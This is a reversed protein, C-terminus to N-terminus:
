SVYVFFICFWLLCIYSMRHTHISVVRYQHVVHAGAHAMDFHLTTVTGKSGIWVKADRAEFGEGGRGKGKKGHLAFMADMVHPFQMAKNETDKENEKVNSAPGRDSGNIADHPKTSDQGRGANAADDENRLQMQPTANSDKSHDLDARLESTLDSKLYYHAEEEADAGAGEGAV